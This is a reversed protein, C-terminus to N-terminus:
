GVWFPRHRKRTLGDNWIVFRVDYEGPLTYKDTEFVFRRTVLDGEYLDIHGHKQRLNLFPVYATITSDEIKQGCVNQFTVLVVLDEGPQIHDEVFTIHKIYIQDRPLNVCKPEKVNITFTDAAICSVDTVSVALDSFGVKDSECELYRNDTIVCDVVGTDSQSLLQYTLDKLDSDVDSTYSYLDIRLSSDKEMDHNPINLVPCVNNCLVYVTITATNSYATGDYARFTYTDTGCFDANPTYTRTNGSGTLQGNAPQTLVEFVLSDQDIDIAPMVTEVAVGEDTTYSADNAVPADNEPTVTITFTTEDGCTGDTVSVTVMSTGTMDQQTKCELYQNATIICSIVTTDTQSTVAYTLTNYANDPDTTAAYLDLVFSTDEAVTMDALDIVPCDNYCEVTITITATNSYATGDYARFTYSDTGCFDADPTYTRTNGSGTLQGNAPQSVVEYTLSDGDVDTATMATLVPTDEPTTFSGDNAVPADNVPTVTIMFTDRDTYTRDSVEVVVNSYGHDDPTPAGCSVYHGGTIQCNILGSDSQSVIMYVLDALPTDPDTTYQWLDIWNPHTAPDDEVLVKDPLGDLNPMHAQPSDLYTTLSVTEGPNLLGECRPDNALGSVSVDYWGFVEGTTDWTFSHTMPDYNNPNAAVTEADSYVVQGDSQRTVTYTLDTAVPYLYYDNDAYNSIKTFSVDVDEGVWPFQNSLALNNLLTYCANQPEDTWVRFEKQSRQEESSLCKSDTVETRVVARYNGTEEPTWTFEVRTSGSLPIIVDRSDHYVTSNDTMNIIDLYVRTRVSYYDTLLNPPVYDLPGAHTMAAYTTADLSATMGIVLPINRKVDNVVTFDEIPSHCVQMKALYVDNYQPDCWPCDGWYDATVEWTIYGPKYFYLGYGYPSMLTTPFTTSIVNTSSAWSGFSQSVSACHDSSCVYGDVNAGYVPTNTNIANGHIDIEKYKLNWDVYRTASVFGSVIILFFAFLMVSRIIKNM